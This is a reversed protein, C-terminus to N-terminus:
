GKTLQKTMNKFKTRLSFDITKDKVEFILGGIIEPDVYFNPIVKASLKSELKQIIKQKYEENLEIASTVLPKEINLEKDNKHSFEELINEILDLRSNDTLICLFNETTKSIIGSFIKSIVEKKDEKTIVPNVFFEQLQPNKTTIDVLYELESLVKQTSNNEKSAEFLANTYSKAAKIKKVDVKEM